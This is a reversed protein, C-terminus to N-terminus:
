KCNALFQANIAGATNAEGCETSEKIQGGQKSINHGKLTSYFIGLEKYSNHNNKSNRM